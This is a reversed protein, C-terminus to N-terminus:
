VKSHRLRYILALVEAVAIYLSEPIPRGEKVTKYITRTLEPRRIIPIGHARAIERIKEAINDAGKALLMPSDMTKPDYRLAVAFHTPNVLIVNAKPVEQMVRKLATQYQVRRIRAKIEPSGETQKHEEKVEQRTMKLDDNHKWKQYYAECVAIIFLAICVRIVMGLVMQSTATVIQMSWAWRLEALDNIKTKLYFWVILGVFLLKVISVILRVMSRSDFLKQFGTVPNLSSFKLKLAKQSFNLGSIAVSSAISGVALIALIPSIIMMSDTIKTNIFHTFAATDAFVFNQCSFGKNMETMFWQMLKPGMLATMIALAALSIVSVFEQSQPVQGQERAKKKRKPTPQETREAAPKDPM